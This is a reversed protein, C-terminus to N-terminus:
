SDTSGGIFGQVGRVVVVVFLWLCGCFEGRVVVVVVVDVVFSAEVHRFSRLTLETRFSIRVFRRVHRM